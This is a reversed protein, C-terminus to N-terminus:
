FACGGDGPYDGSRVLMRGNGIGSGTDAQHVFVFHEIVDALMAVEDPQFSDTMVIVLTVHRDTTDAPGAPVQTNGGQQPIGAVQGAVVPAV